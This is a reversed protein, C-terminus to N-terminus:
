NNYQNVLDKLANMTERPINAPNGFRGSEVNPINNAEQALGSAMKKYRSFAMRLGTPIHTISWAFQGAPQWTTWEKPTRHVAFQGFITAKISKMITEDNIRVCINIDRNEM